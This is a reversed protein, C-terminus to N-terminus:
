IHAHDIERHLNAIFQKATTNSSVFLRNFKNKAMSYFRDKKADDISLLTALTTLHEGEGVAIDSRLRAFNAQVFKLVKENHDKDEERHSTSSTVDSSADSSNQFTESSSETSDTTVACSSVFLTIFLATSLTVIKHIFM